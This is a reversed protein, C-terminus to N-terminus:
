VNFQTFQICYVTQLPKIVSHQKTWIMAHNTEHLGTQQSRRLFESITKYVRNNVTLVRVRGTDINTQHFFSTVNEMFHEFAENLYVNIKKALYLSESKGSLTVSENRLNEEHKEQM